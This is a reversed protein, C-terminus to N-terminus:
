IFDVHKPVYKEFLIKLNKKKFFTNKFDILLYKLISKLICNAYFRGFMLFFYSLNDGWLVCVCFLRFLTLVHDVFVYERLAMTLM